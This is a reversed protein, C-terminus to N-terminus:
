ISLIKVFKTYIKYLNPIVADTCDLLYHFEDGIDKSNCLKCIRNERPINFWRGTEIPFKTNGTRFKCYNKSLNAPLNLQYEDISLSKEFLRYNLNKPSTQM